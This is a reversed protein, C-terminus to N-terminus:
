QRRAAEGDKEEALDGEWDFPPFDTRGGLSFSTYTIPLGRELFQREYATKVSLVEDAFGSGYIQRKYVDGRGGSRHHLPDRM